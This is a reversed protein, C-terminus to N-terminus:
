LQSESSHYMGISTDGYMGSFDEGCQCPCKYQRGKYGSDIKYLASVALKSLLHHSLVVTWESEQVGKKSMLSKEAGSVCYIWIIICHYALVIIYYLICSLTVNSIKVM